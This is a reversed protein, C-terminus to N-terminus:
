ARRATVGPAFRPGYSIRLRMPSPPM